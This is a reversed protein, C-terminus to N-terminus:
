RADTERQMALVRPDDGPAAVVNVSRNFSGVRVDFLCPDRSGDARAHSARLEGRRTLFAPGKIKATQGLLLIVQKPDISDFRLGEQAVWGLNDSGEALKELDPVQASSRIEISRIIGEAMLTLMCNAYAGVSSGQKSQPGHPEDPSDEDTVMRLETLVSQGAGFLSSLRDGGASVADLDADILRVGDFGLLLFQVRDSEPLQSESTPAASDYLSAATRVFSRASDRVAEHGIGGIVGFTSTTYLSANGDSFAVVTATAEGLPWDMVVGYVVPFDVSPTIGFDAPSTVIAQSRLQQMIDADYGSGGAEPARAM